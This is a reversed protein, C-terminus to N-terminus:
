RKEREIKGYAMSLFKIKYKNTKYHTLPLVELEDPMISHYVQSTFKALVDGM